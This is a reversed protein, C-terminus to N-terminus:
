EVQRYSLTVGVNVARTVTITGTGADTIDVVSAPDLSANAASTALKITDTTDEVVFYVTGAALGAPLTGTSSVKVAERFKLGHSEITLLDSTDDVLRVPLSEETIVLNLKDGDDTEFLGLECNQSISQGGPLYFVGSINDTEEAQFQVACAADSSLSFSTVRLKTAAVAPVLDGSETLDAAAFRIEDSFVDHFTVHGDTTTGAGTGRIYADNGNADRGYLTM